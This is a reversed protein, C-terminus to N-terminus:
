PSPRGPLCAPATAWLLRRKVTGFFKLFVSWIGLRSVSIGSVTSSQPLRRMKASSMGVWTGSGVVSGSRSPGPLCKTTTKMGLTVWLLRAASTLFIIRFPLKGLNSCYFAEKEVRELAEPLQISKLASCYRFAGKGIQRLTSPLQIEELEYAVDFAEASIQTIGEGLIARRYHSASFAGDGFTGVSGPVTLTEDAWTEAQGMSSFARERIVTLGQPLNVSTLGGTDALGRDGIMTVTEPLTVRGKARYMGSRAIGTVTYTMDDDESYVTEPIVIEEGQHRYCSTVMVTRDSTPQYVVGDVMFLCALTCWM